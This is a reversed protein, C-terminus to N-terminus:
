SNKKEENLILAEPLNLMSKKFEEIMKTAVKEVGLHGPILFFSKNVEKLSLILNEIDSFSLSALSEKKLGTCITVAMEIFEQMSVSERKGLEDKLNLIEQVTFERVTIEGAETNIKSFKRM